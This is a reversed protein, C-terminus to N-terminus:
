RETIPECQYDPDASYHPLGSWGCKCPEWDDMPKQEWWGRFGNVGSPTDTDHRIHNHHLVWGRKATRPVTEFRVRIYGNPTLTKLTETMADGDFRFKTM